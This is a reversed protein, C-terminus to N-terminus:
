RCIKINQQHKSIFLSDTLYQSKKNKSKEKNKKPVLNLYSVLEADNEVEEILEKVNM